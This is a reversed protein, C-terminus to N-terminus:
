SGRLNPVCAAIQVLTKLFFFFCVLLFFFFCEIGYDSFM